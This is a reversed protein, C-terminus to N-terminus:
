AVVIRQLDTVLNDFSAAVFRGLDLLVEFEKINADIAFKAWEKRRSNQSFAFSGRTPHGEQKAKNAIAFAFSKAESDSLAPKIIGIWEILAEIYKSSRSGGGRGGRNRSYPVRDPSVGKDLIFAYDQMLIQGKFGNNESFIKVEITDILKGSARHGQEALERKIKDVLFDTAKQISRRLINEALIM